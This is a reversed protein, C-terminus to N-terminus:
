MNLRGSGRRCYKPSRGIGAFAKPMELMLPWLTEGLLNTYGRM